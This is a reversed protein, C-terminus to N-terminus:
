EFHPEVLGEETPIQFLRRSGKAKRPKETEFLHSIDLRAVIREQNELMEKKEATFNLIEEGVNRGRM